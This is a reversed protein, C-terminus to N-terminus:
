LKQWIIFFTLNNNMTNVYCQYPDLAPLVSKKNRHVPHSSLWTTFLIATGHPTDLWKHNKLYPPTGELAKSPNCTRLATAHFKKPLNDNQQPGSNIHQKSQWIYFAIHANSTFFVALVAWNKLTDLIGVKFIYMQGGELLADQLSYLVNGWSERNCGVSYSIRLIGSANGNDLFCPGM